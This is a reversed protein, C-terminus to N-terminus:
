HAKKELPVRSHVLDRICVFMCVCMCVGPKIAGKRPSGLYAPVLFTFDIQLLLCHTATAHAPGYALSCRAGSMYGRWCRLKECALHGEQRGVLLTM